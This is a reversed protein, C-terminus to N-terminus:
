CQKRPSVPLGVQALGRIDRIRGDVIAGKLGQAAAATSMLDGWLANPGDHPGSIFIVSGKPANDIEYLCCVSSLRLSSVAPYRQLHSVHHGKPPSAVAESAHVMQLDIDFISNGIILGCIGGEYKRPQDVHV